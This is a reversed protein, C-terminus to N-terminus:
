HAHVLINGGRIIGSNSYPQGDATCAADISISVSDGNISGPVGEDVIDVFVLGTDGGPGTCEGVFSAQSLSGLSGLWDASEECTESLDGFFAVPLMETHVKVGAMSDNFQFQGRYFRSREGDGYLDARVCQGQFGFTAKGGNVGAIWGGGTVKHCGTIVVLMATAAIAARGWSVSKKHKDM